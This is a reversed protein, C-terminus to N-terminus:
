AGAADSNLGQGTDQASLSKIWGETQKSIAIVQNIATQFSNFNHFAKVEKCLRVALKAQESEERLERLVALKERGQLNNARVILKVINRARERLESGLTYKHYRSFNRAVQEVYLNFDFASKYIALHEYRAM